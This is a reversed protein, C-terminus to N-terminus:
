ARDTGHELHCWTTFHCLISQIIVHNSETVHSNDGINCCIGLTHASNNCELVIGVQCHCSNGNCNNRLMEALSSCSQFASPSWPPFIFQVKPDGPSSSPNRETWTDAQSLWTQRCYISFCSQTSLWMLEACASLSWGGEQRACVTRPCSVSFCGCLKCQRLPSKRISFSPFFSPHVTKVSNSFYAAKICNKQWTWVLYFDPITYKCWSTIKLM